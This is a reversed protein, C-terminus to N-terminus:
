QQVRNRLNVESDLVLVTEPDRKPKVQLMIQVWQAGPVPPASQYTFISDNALGAQVPIVAGTDLRRTLTGNTATYTINRLTGHVYTSFSVASESSNSEDVATAQRLEKTMNNLVIRMSDLSATRDAQYAQSRTVSDLTQVVVVGIVLLLSVTILLEILSFGKQSEVSQHPHRKNFRM